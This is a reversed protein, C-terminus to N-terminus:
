KKIHANTKDIHVVSGVDSLNTTIVCFITHTFTYIYTYSTIYKFIYICITYGFIISLRCGTFHYTLQLPSKPVDIKYVYMYLITNIFRHMCKHAHICM